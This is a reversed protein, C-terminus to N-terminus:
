AWLNRPGPDVLWTLPVSLGGWCLGVLYTSLM